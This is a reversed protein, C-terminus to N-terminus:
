LCNPNSQICAAINIAILHCLHRNMSLWLRNNLEGENSKSLSAITHHSTMNEIVTCFSVKRAILGKM